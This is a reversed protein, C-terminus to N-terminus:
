EISREPDDEAAAEAVGREVGAALGALRAQEGM